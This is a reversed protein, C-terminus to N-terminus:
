VVPVRSPEDSGSSAVSQGTVTSSVATNNSTRVIPGLEDAYEFKLKAGNVRCAVCSASDVMQFHLIILMYDFVVDFEVAECDWRNPHFCGGASNSNRSLSRILSMIPCCALGLHSSAMFTRARM